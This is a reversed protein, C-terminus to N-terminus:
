KMEEIQQELKKIRSKLNTIEFSQKILSDECTVTYKNLEEIEAQAKRTASKYGRGYYQFKKEKEKDSYFGYREEEFAERIEDSPYQQGPQQGTGNSYSQIVIPKTMEWTKVSNNFINNCGRCTFISDGAYDSYVSGCRPCPNDNNVGM